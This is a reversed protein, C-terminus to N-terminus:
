ADLKESPSEGFYARLGVEIAAQVVPLPQSADVVHFREPEASARDLYAQRAREFFGLREQEFRDLAGRRSAREMGLSAPADLLVTLDPRLSGQVWQELEAIRQWVMQRGGGQYAFSADTFRDSLVWEGRALAPEIVQAIHEARAAFIMLLEAANSMGKFEPDLLLGRLAEGLPTGGPERTQRLKIGRAQLREALFALNTSKGVGEIGEITVFSGRTV